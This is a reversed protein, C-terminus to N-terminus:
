NSADAIIAHNPLSYVVKNKLSFMKRYEVTYRLFENMEENALNIDDIYVLM